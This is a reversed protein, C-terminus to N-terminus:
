PAVVGDMNAEKPFVYAAAATAAPTNLGLTAPAVCTGVDADTSALKVLTTSRCM